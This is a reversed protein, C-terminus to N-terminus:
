SVMPLTVGFHPHITVDNAEVQTRHQDVVMRYDNRESRTIDRGILTAEDM